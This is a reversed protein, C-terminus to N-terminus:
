VKIFFEAIKGDKKDYVFLHGKKESGVFGSEWTWKCNESLSGLWNYIVGGKEKRSESHKHSLHYYKYPKNWYEKADVQMCDFIRNKEKEGHSLGLLVNGFTLYKRHLMSNDVTINDDSEYLKKLTTTITYTTLSDHNGPIYIVELQSINKLQEVCYISVDLAKEYVEQFFTNTDQPTGKTTTFELNDFNLFDQGLIFYIKNVNYESLNKVSLNIAQKAKDVAIDVDYNGNSVLTSVYKGIHLDAFNIEVIVGNKNNSPNSKEIVPFKINNIVNYIWEEKFEPVVPKVTIKSSYLQQVGDRKSYVNWINNRASSIQWFGTDFGHAELLFDPDKSDEESMKLLKDSKYSGDSLLETSESYQSEIDNEENQNKLNIYDEIGYVRKRSECSSKKIGVIDLYFNIYDEDNKKGSKRFELIKDYTKKDLNDM